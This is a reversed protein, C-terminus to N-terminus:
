VERPRFPLLRSFPWNPQADTNQQLGKEILEQLCPDTFFNRWNINGISNTDSVAVEEGYLNEPVSTQPQYSSYIGCSSLLLTASFAIINQTKM